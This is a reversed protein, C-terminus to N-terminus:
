GRQWYRRWGAAVNVRAFQARTMSRVHRAFRDRDAPSTAFPGLLANLERELRRAGGLEFHLKQFWTYRCAEAASAFARATTAPIAASRSIQDLLMFFTLRHYGVFSTSTRLRHASILAGRARSALSGNMQNGGHIRHHVVADDVYVLGASLLAEIGMVYDFIFNGHFAALDIWDRRVIAAHASVLPHFLTSLATASAADVDLTALITRGLDRGSADILQSRGFALARPGIAALLRANRDPAWIDDQDAIAVFEGRSAAILEILRRRQGRNGSAPLPRIRADTRALEAVVAVSDDTSGDDIVLVEFDPDTQALISRVQERLFGAGNYTPMVISLRVNPAM